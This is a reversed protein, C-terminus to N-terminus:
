IRNLDAKAIELAHEAEEPDIDCSTYRRFVFSCSLSQGKM